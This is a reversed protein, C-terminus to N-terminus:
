PTIYKFGSHSQVASPRDHFQIDRLLQDSRMEFCALHAWPLLNADGDVLRQGLVGGAGQHHQLQFRHSKFPGFGGQANLVDIVIQNLLVVLIRVIM